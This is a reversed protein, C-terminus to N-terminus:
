LMNHFVTGDNQKSNNNGKIVAQTTVTKNYELSFTSSLFTKTSSTKSLIEQKAGVTLGFGHTRVRNRKM